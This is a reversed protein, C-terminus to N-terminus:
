SLSSLFAWGLTLASILQFLGCILLVSAFSRGGIVVRCRGVLIPLALAWLLEALLFCGVFAIERGHFRQLAASGVSVWYALGFPSTVSMGLGVMFTKRSAYASRRAVQPMQSRRMGCWGERLASWALYVLLGIGVLGLVVHLVAAHILVLDVGVLGLLAYLADGLLSGLQLSLGARAGDKGVRRATEINVPGPPAVYVLGMIAAFLM